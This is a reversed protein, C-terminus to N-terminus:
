ILPVEYTKKGTYSISYNTKKRKEKRWFQKTKKKFTGKLIFINMSIKRFM